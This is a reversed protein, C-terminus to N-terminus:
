HTGGPGIVTSFGVYVSRGLGPLLGPGPYEDTRKTFYRANALNNIGATVTHRASVRWRASADMVTYAPVLGTAGNEVSPAVSNNADGYSQSTHSGQLTLAVPGRGWTLGLRAVVRPAQEVRNGRFEGSVYRADIFALSSFLDLSGLSPVLTPALLSLADVELYSEVGQHVSNGINAIEIAADPGNGVTRTGVRNGYSLYFASLDFKVSRGATGRWGLDANCGRASRLAPDVTAVSGFPTLSAYLIPRYAQSVNAYLSTSGGLLYEVGTGALPYAFTRPAFVSDVDTYGEASSRLYEFRV